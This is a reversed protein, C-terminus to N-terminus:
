WEERKQEQVDVEGDVEVRLGDRGRNGVVQLALVMQCDSTM